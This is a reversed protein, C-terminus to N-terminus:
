VPIPGVTTAYIWHENLNGRKCVHLECCHNIKVDTVTGDDVLWDLCHRACHLFSPLLVFLFRLVMRQQYFEVDAKMWVWCHSFTVMM